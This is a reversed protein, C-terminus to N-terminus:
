AGGMRLGVVPRLVSGHRSSNRGKWSCSPSAGSSLVQESSDCLTRGTPNALQLHGTAYASGAVAVPLELAATEATGLAALRRTTHRTKATEIDRMSTTLERHSFHKRLGRVCRTVPNTPLRATRLRADPRKPRGGSPTVLAVSSCTARVLGCGFVVPGGAHWCFWMQLAALVDFTSAKM